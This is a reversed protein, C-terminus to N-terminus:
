RTALQPDFDISLEIVVRRDFFNGELNELKDQPQSEGYAISLIQERATGHQVLYNEIATVRQASLKQNYTEDGRRDTYGWLNVRAEHNHHLIKAINSLERQYQPEIDSSATRFQLPLSRSKVQITQLDLLKDLDRNLVAVLRQSDERETKLDTELQTLRLSLMKNQRRQAFLRGFVESGLVTGAFGGIPGGAISGIALGAAAGRTQEIDALKASVSACSITTLIFATILTKLKM